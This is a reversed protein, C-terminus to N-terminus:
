RKDYGVFTKEDDALDRQTTIRTMDAVAEIDLLEKLTSPKEVDDAYALSLAFMPDGGPCAYPNYFSIVEVHNKEDQGDELLGHMAGFVAKAKEEQGLVIRVGGFMKPLTRTAMTFATVLGFNKGGGKLAWYLESNEKESAEVVTGNPLAVEFSTVVECAWGLSAYFLSIGGHLLFGSVGVPRSRGGPVVLGHPELFDYVTGWQLGVGFRVQENGSLLEISSLRSTSILIGPSTNHGPVPM